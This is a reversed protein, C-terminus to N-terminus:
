FASDPQTLFTIEEPTSPRGLITNRHPFRGFRDIITQHAIAYRTLEPDGLAGILEVARRQDDPDESHEFPLYLFLRELTTLRADLGAALAARAVCLAQSDTAFARPTGRFMNRPFQDLVIVTALALRPTLDASVPSQDSLNAHIHSFRSRIVEDVRDDKRFWQDRTLEGFWYGLVERVWAPEPEDDRGSPGTASTV